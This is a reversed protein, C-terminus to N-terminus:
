GDVFVCYFPHFDSKCHVAAADNIRLIYHIRRHCCVTYIVTGHGCDFDGVVGDRRLFDLIAGNVSGFDRQVGDRVRVDL